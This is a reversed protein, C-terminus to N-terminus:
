RRWCGPLTARIEGPVSRRFTSRLLTGSTARPRSSGTLLYLGKGDHDDVARRVHNWLDLTEQWEDFLIPTPNNFLQEPNAVLTTRANSDLDMRYVTKAAQTATETKGVAKPGDILIAAM